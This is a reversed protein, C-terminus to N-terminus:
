EAFYDPQGGGVFVDVRGKAVGLADSGQVDPRVSTHDEPHITLQVRRSSRAPIHVREFAALQVHPVPVTNHTQRVYVQVVEDGGHHGVNHVTVAVEVKDCADGM